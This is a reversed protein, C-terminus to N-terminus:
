VLLGKQADGNSLGEEVGKRIEEFVEDSLRLSIRPM